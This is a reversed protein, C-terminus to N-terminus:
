KKDNPVVENRKKGKECYFNEDVIYIRGISEWIECYRNIGGFCDGYICEKCTVM